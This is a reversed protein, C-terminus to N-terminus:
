ASGGDEREAAESQPSPARHYRPLSWGYRLAGARLGLGIVIGAIVATERPAGFQNLVVYVVAASLAATVYIEQGFIISRKHGLVDRIIGGFCATIGMTVAVIPAAGVSLAREAGVTAFLAVGIADFWLILRYRKDMLHTTFFMAVAVIFCVVVYEPREIWLIPHINLLLDRLTGGGIGTVTGLLVFGVVDMQYRSAALAGTVTFAVIGLWDLVALGNDFM